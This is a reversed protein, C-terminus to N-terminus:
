KPQSAPSRRLPWWPLLRGIIVWRLVYFALLVLVPSAFEGVHDRDAVRQFAVARLAQTTVREASGDTAASALAAAENVRRRNEMESFRFQLPLLVALLLALRFTAQEVRAGFNM